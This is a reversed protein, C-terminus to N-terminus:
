EKRDAAPPTTGSAAGVAPDKAGGVSDASPRALERAAARALARVLQHLATSSAEAPRPQHTHDSVGLVSGANGLVPLRFHLAEL